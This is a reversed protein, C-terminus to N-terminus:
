PGVARRGGGAGRRAGEKGPVTAPFHDDRRLHVGKRRAGRGGRRGAAGEDVGDAEPLRQLGRLVRADHVRPQPATSIGENPLQPQDRLGAGDRRGHAAEPLAGAGGAPVAAPRARQPAHRLAPRARRGGGTADDADRGGPLRARRPVPSHRPHCPQPDRLGEALGPERHPRPLAAQLPDGRRHARAMEGAATRLVQGSVGVTSGVGDAREDRGSSVAAVGVLDGVDLLKFVAFDRASVSDKRVYAQLKSKGDSLVLFNAKGFSRIAVIRGATVTEPREDELEESSRNGHADVIASVSEASEFRAPYPASGSGSERSRSPQSTEAVRHENKLKYTLKGGKGRIESVESRYRNGVLHEVQAQGLGTKKAVAPVTRSPWQSDALLARCVKFWDNADSAQLRANM